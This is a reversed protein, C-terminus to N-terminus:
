ESIDAASATPHEDYASLGSDPLARQEVVGGLGRRIQAQQARDADLGLHFQHEGSQMLETHRQQIPHLPNRVRLAPRERRHEPESGARGRVPEHDPERHEAQDRVQRVLLRHQDDDVIGLPEVGRGCLRESEDGAPDPVLRDTEEEACALDADVEVTEGLQFDLTQRLVVSPRQQPRRHLEQQISRDPVANHGLGTAIRQRQQLQRPTQRRGLQRGPEPQEAPM